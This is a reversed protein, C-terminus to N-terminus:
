DDTRRWLYLEVEEFYPELKFRSIHQPYLWNFNVQNPNCFLYKTHKAVAKIMPEPNVMHEFVDMAVIFDYDQDLKYNETRFIPRVGYREFRWRAYELTKSGEVDMFDMQVGEESAIITQEGIGGGIDIGTKWGYKKITDRFWQHVNDKQLRMQYHTLDFIYLEDERYGKLPDDLWEKKESWRWAQEINAIQCRAEVLTLDRGTYESLEAYLNKMIEDEGKM